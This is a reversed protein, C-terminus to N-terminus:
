KYHLLVMQCNMLHILTQIYILMGLNSFETPTKGGAILWKIWDVVETDEISKLPNLLVALLEKFQNTEASKSCEAQVFM